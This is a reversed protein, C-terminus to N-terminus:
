LGTAARRPLKSLGSFRLNRRWIRVLVGFTRRLADGVAFAVNPSNARHFLCDKVCGAARRRGSRRAALAEPILIQSGGSFDAAQFFIKVKELVEGRRKRLLLHSIAGWLFNRRAATVVAELLEGWEFVFLLFFICLLMVVSSASTDHLPRYGDRGAEMVNVIVAPAVPAGAPKETLHIFAAAHGRDSAM